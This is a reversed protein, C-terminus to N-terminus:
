MQVTHTIFDDSIELFFVGDDTGDSGYPNYLSEIVKGELLIVIVAFPQNILM